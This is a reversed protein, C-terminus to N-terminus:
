IKIIGPSEVKRFLCTADSRLYFSDIKYKLTKLILRTMGQLQFMAIICEFTQKIKWLPKKPRPDKVALGCPPLKVHIALTFSISFLAM